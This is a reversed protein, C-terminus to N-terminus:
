YLKVIIVDILHLLMHSMFILYDETIHLPKHLTPNIIIETDRIKRNIVTM